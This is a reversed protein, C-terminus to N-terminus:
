TSSRVVRLDLAVGPPRRSRAREFRRAPLDVKCGRIRSMAVPVPLIAIRAAGDGRQSCQTRWNMRRDRGDARWITGASRPRQTAFARQQQRNAPVAGGNMFASRRAHPARAAHCDHDRPSDGRLHLYVAVLVEVEVDRESGSKTGRAERRDVLAAEVEAEVTSLYRQRDNRGRVLQQPQRRSRPRREGGVQGARRKRRPGRSSPGGRAISKQSRSAGLANFRRSRRDGVDALQKASVSPRRGDGRATSGPCATSLSSDTTPSASSPGVFDAEEHPVVDCRRVSRGARARGGRM